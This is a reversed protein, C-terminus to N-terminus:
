WELSDDLLFLLKLAAIVVAVAQVDYKVAKGKKAIPDFTLFDVEGIGTVKVVQCTVDHMEVTSSCFLLVPILKKPRCSWGLTHVWLLLKVKFWSALVGLCTQPIFQFITGSSSSSHSPSAKRRRNRSGRVDVVQPCQQAGLACGCETKMTGSTNRAQTELAIQMSRFRVGRHSESAPLFGPQRAPLGRTCRVLRM